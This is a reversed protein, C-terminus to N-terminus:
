FQELRLLLDALPFPKQLLRIREDLVSTQALDTPAYGSMFLTKHIADAGFLQFALERGGMTPMIVDTLLVDFAIGLSHFLGLAERGDAAGVAKHGHAELFKVIADRANGEDEVVLVTKGRGALGAVKRDVPQAANRKEQCLPFCLDFSTGKGLESQVSIHGKSQMVFGQVMSLGLGTGHGRQKTTFFPEFIKSRTTSDMGTGSDTIKLLASATAANGAPNEDATKVEITLSGGNPMADRAILALNLIAQDLQYRDLKVQVPASALRLEIAVNEPISRRLINSLEAVVQNLDLVTPQLTQKRSFALLQRTLIAARTAAEGIRDLNHRVPSEEAVRDMALETHASIIMLLNNFDHAIGGVLEGVTEMRHKHRLNRATEKREIAYRIARVLVTRATEGKILYDQAGNRVAETALKEDMQGTLVLVPIDPMQTLMTRFTDAGTSDPLNLDLLVVDVAVHSLSALAASLRDVCKIHFRPSSCEELEACILQADGPNDEVLLINLVPAEEAPM